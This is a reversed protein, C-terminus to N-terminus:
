RSALTPILLMLMTMVLVFFSLALYLLVMKLATYKRFRPHEWLNFSNSLLVYPIVIAVLLTFIGTAFSELQKVPNFDGTVIRYTDGCFWAIGAALYLLLVARWVTFIKARIGGHVGIRDMWRNLPTDKDPLGSLKSVTNYKLRREIGKVEGIDVKNSRTVELFREVSPLRDDPDFALMVKLLAKLPESLGPADQVESSLNQSPERSTLMFYLLAGLSYVDSKANTQGFGFQEPSAYGATGLITTDTEVREKYRRAIGVDILCARGEHVVVNNPCVDRHIIPLPQVSHLEHLASAIMRAYSLAQAEPLPGNKEVLEKLSTGELYEFVGVTKGPVRYLNLLRPLFPCDIQAYAALLAFGERSDYLYKRIFPGEGELFVVETKERLSSKLTKRVSYRDDLMIGALEFDAM